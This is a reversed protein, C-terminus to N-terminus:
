GLSHKIQMLIGFRVSVIRHLELYMVLVIVQGKLNKLFFPFLYTLFRGLTGQHMLGVAM